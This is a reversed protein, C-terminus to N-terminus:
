RNKIGEWLNITEVLELYKKVAASINFDDKFQEWIHGLIAAGAFNNDIVDRVRQDTVGGVAIVNTLNKNKGLFSKIANINLKSNYGINSISDFVPSLLVYNYKYDLKKLENLDKLTHLTYSIHGFKEIVDTISMQNLKAYKEITNQKTFHVGKLGLSYALELHEDIICHKHYKQPISMIFDYLQVYSFNRKRIHFYTLGKEFLKVVLDIENIIPEYDSILIIKM